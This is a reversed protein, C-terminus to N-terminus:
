SLSLTSEAYSNAGLNGDPFIGHSAIWDRSEEFVEKSYPEFV